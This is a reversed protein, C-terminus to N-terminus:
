KKRTVGDFISEDTRYAVAQCTAVLKETGKKVVRMQYLATTRGQNIERAEAVLEEGVFVPSRYVIEVSLAVARTGHANSAAAFVADALTFVLGGHAVGHFNLMDETIKLSAKAYGPKIEHFVIGLTNIFKDSSIKKVTEEYSSM